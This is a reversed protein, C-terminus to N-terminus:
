RFGTAIREIGANGQRATFRPDLAEVRPDPYRTAPLHGLPLPEHRGFPYAGGAHNHDMERSEKKRPNKGWLAFVLV